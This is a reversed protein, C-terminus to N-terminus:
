WKTYNQLESVGGEALGVVGGREGGGDAAIGAHARPVAGLAAGGGGLVLGRQGLLGLTLSM